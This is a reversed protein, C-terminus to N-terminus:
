STRPSSTETFSTAARAHALADGLQLMFRVADAVTLPGDREVLDRLNIGEIFEFVIYHWGHDEGVYHMSGSTKTISDRPRSRRMKLVASRKKMTPSIM